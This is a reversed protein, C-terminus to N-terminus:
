QIMIRKVETYTPSSIKVNYLGKYGFRHSFLNQGEKLQFKEKAVLRGVADTIEIEFGEDVFGRFLFSVYSGEKSPNPYATISRQNEDTRTGDRQENQQTFHPTGNTQTGCEDFSLIQELILGNDNSVSVEYVGEKLGSINGTNMSLEFEHHEKTIRNFLSINAGLLEEDIELTIGNATQTSEDCDVAFIKADTPCDETEPEWIIFYDTESVLKELPIRVLTGAGYDEYFLEASNRGDTLIPAGRFEMLTDMWLFATEPNEEAWNHLTLKWPVMTQNYGCISATAMDKKNSLVLYSRDSLGRDPMEGLAAAMDFTLKVGGADSRFTQTQYFDLADNRGLAFVNQDYLFDMPFDWFLADDLSVYRRMEDRENETINISYKLALHTEVKRSEHANLKKDIFIVEALKLDKGFVPRDLNKKFKPSVDYTLKIISPGKKPEYLLNHQGAEAHSSHIRIPGFGLSMEKHEFVGVLFLTGSKKQAIENLKSSLVSDTLDLCPYNGIFDTESTHVSNGPHAWVSSNELFAPITNQAPSYFVFALFVIAFNFRLITPSFDREWTQGNVPHSM